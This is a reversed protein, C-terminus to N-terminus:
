QLPHVLITWALRVQNPQGLHPSSVHISAVIFNKKKDMHKPEVIPGFHTQILLILTLSSM